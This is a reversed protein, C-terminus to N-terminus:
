RGHRRYAAKLAAVTRAFSARGPRLQWSVDLSGTPGPLTV